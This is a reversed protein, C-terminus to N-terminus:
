ASYLLYIVHQYEKTVPHPGQADRQICPNPTHGWINSLHSLLSFDAYTILLQLSRPFYTSLLSIHFSLFFKYPPTIPQHFITHERLLHLQSRTSICSSYWFLSSNSLFFFFDLIKVSGILLILQLTRKSLVLAMLQQSPNSTTCITSNGVILYIVLIKLARLRIALSSSAMVTPTESALEGTPQPFNCCLRHGRLM